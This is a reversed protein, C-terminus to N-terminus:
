NDRCQLCTLAAGRRFGGPETKCRSSPQKDSPLSQAMGHKTFFIYVARQPWVGSEKQHIVTFLLTVCLFPWLTKRSYRLTSIFYLLFLWQPQGSDVFCHGRMRAIKNPTKKKKEQAVKQALTQTRLTKASIVGEQQHTIEQISRYLAPQHPVQGM